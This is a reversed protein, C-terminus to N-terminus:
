LSMEDMCVYIGSEIRKHLEAIAKRGLASRLGVAIKKICRGPHM